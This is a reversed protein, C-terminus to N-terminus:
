NCWESVSAEASALTAAMEEDSLYERQGNESTRYLRPADVYSRYIDKAQECYYKRSSDRAQREESSEDSDADNGQSTTTRGNSSTSASRNRPTSGVREANVADARAPTDGYHVNGDEDVWKWIDANATLSMGLILIMIATLEKM